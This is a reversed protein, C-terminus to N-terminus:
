RDFLFFLIYKVPLGELKIVAAMIQKTRHVCFTVKSLKWNDVKRLILVVATVMTVM